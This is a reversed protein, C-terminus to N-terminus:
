VHDCVCVSIHTHIMHLVNKAGSVKTLRLKDSVLKDPPTRRGAAYTLKEM